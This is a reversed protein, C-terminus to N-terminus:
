VIFHQHPGIVTKKKCSRNLPPRVGKSPRTSTRFSRFLERTHPVTHPSPQPVISAITMHLCSPRPNALLAKWTQKHRMDGELYWMQFPHRLRVKISQNIISLCLATKATQRDSESSTEKINILQINPGKFFTITHVWAEDTWEARSPYPLRHNTRHPGFMKM